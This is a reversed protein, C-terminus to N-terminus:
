MKSVTSELFKVFVNFDEISLPMANKTTTNYLNLSAVWKGTIEKAPPTNTVVVDKWIYKGGQDVNVIKGEFSKENTNIYQKEKKTTTSATLPKEIVVEFSCAVEVGKGTNYLIEINSVRKVNLYSSNITNMANILDAVENKTLSIYNLDSVIFGKSELILKNETTGSNLDKLTLMSAKFDLIKGFDTHSKELLLPKPQATITGFTLALVLLLSIKKM